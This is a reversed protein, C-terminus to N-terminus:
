GTHAAPAAAGAKAPTAIADLAWHLSHDAVEEWGRTGLLFHDRGAFEHFDTHAPSRRYARWNTRNLSAPIIHDKEGAILLLPPRSKRFDVRAGRGLGARAFRRSEPVVQEEWHRQQEAPPLTNVFAYRFHDLSMLYPRNASVFPTLAPWTSRLFSWKFSLVGPPPVSDIAVGCAGLQRQLLIQTLLGGFSHGIVIPPADCARIAREFVEIVAPLTVAATAPDPHRARLVAPEADRHPYAPAVCRHGLAEFRRVWPDWCKRTVFAGHVFVIPPKQM